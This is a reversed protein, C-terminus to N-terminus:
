LYLLVMRGYDGCMGLAAAGQNHETNTDPHVLRGEVGGKVGLLQVSVASFHTELLTEHTLLNQMATQFVEEFISLALFIYSSSLCIYCFM